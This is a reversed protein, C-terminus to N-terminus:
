QSGAEKGDLYVRRLTGAEFQEPVPPLELRRHAKGLAALVTATTFLREPDAYLASGDPAEWPHSCKRPPIRLSPAAQWAGDAMQAALLTRTLSALRAPAARDASLSLLLAVQLADNPALRRLPEPPAEPLGLGALCALNAECAPLPSAWWFSDWLGDARRARHIAALARSEDAASLIGPATRLATLAVPTIEPHSIGWSGTLGDPLFTSFGGDDRQYRRLSALAAAPAPTGLAALFLIAHATSDADEEVAPSYGWGGGAGRRALLWRAARALPAQLAAGMPARLAALRHGVYATTWDRSAGPPLAWDTWGGDPAQRALLFALGRQLAADIQETLRIM